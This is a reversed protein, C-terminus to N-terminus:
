FILLVGMGFQVFRYTIKSDTMPYVSDKEKDEINEYGFTLDLGVGPTFFYTAGAGLHWGFVKTKREASSGYEYRSSGIGMRGEAFPIFKKQSLLYYRLSPGVLFGSSTSKAGNKRTERILNLLIGGSLHDTIGYNLSPANSLSPYSSFPGIAFSTFNTKSDYESHAEDASELSGARFSLINGTVFCSGKEIQATLTSGATILIVMLFTITSKM